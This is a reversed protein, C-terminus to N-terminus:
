RTLTEEATLPSVIQCGPGKLASMVIDEDKEAFQRVLYYVAFNYSGFAGPM